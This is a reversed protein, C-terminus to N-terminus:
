EPYTREAAASFQEYFADMSAFQTTRFHRYVELPEVNGEFVSAYFFWFATLGLERLVPVAIDYQCRLADDFTLCIDSEGLEGAISRRMWEEAPLIRERGIHDLMRAFEAASIAGQGRPHRDDHFHNFMIGYAAM